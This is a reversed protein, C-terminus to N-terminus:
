LRAPSSPYVGQKVKATDPTTYSIETATPQLLATLTTSNESKPPQGMETSVSTAETVSTAMPCKSVNKGSFVWLIHHIKKPRAGISLSRM